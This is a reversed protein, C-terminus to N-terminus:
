PQAPRMCVMALMEFCLLDWGQHVMTVQVRAVDPNISSDIPEHRCFRQFSDIDQDDTLASAQVGVCVCNVGVTISSACDRCLAIHKNKSVAYPIARVADLMTLLLPLQEKTAAQQLAQIKNRIPSVLFSAYHREYFNDTREQVCMESM